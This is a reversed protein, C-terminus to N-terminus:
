RRKIWFLYLVDNNITESLYFALDEHMPSKCHFFSAKYGAISLITTDRIFCDVASNDPWCSQHAQYISTFICFEVSILQLDHVDSNCVILFVTLAAHVSKPNSVALDDATTSATSSAQAFTIRCLQAKESRNLSSRLILTSFLKPTKTTISLQGGM